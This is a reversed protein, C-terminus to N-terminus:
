GGGVHWMGCEPLCSQGRGARDDGVPSLTSVLNLEEGCLSPVPQDSLWHHKERGRGQGQAVQAGNPARHWVEAWVVDVPAQPPGSVLCLSLFSDWMEESKGSGM